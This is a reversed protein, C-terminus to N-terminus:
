PWTTICVTLMHIAVVQCCVNRSLCLPLCRNLPRRPLLPVLLWFRFVFLCSLLWRDYRVQLCRLPLVTVYKAVIQSITESLAPRHVRTVVLTGVVDSAEVEVLKKEAADRLLTALASEIVEPRLAAVTKSESRKLKRSLSVADLPLVFSPAALLRYTILRFEQLVDSTLGAVNQSSAKDAAAATPSPEAPVVGSATSPTAATAAAARSLLEM